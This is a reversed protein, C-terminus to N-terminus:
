FLSKIKNILWKLAGNQQSTKENQMDSAISDRDQQPNLAEGKAAELPAPLSNYLNVNKKDPGYLIIAQPSSDPFGLNGSNLIRALNRASATHPLDINFNEKLARAVSTACSYGEAYMKGESDVELPVRVGQPNELFFQESGDERITVVKGEFFQNNPAFAPSTKSKFKLLEGNEQEVLLKASSGDFAPLNYNVSGSFFRRISPYSKEISEKGVWFVFGRNGAVESPRRFTEGIRGHRINAFDFM